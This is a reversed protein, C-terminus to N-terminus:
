DEGLDPATIEELGQRYARAALRYAHAMEGGQEPDIREIRSALNELRDAELRDAHAQKRRADAAAQQRLADIEEGRVRCRQDAKWLDRVRSELWGLRRTAKAIRAKVNMGDHEPAIKRLLLSAEDRLSQAASERNKRYIEFTLASVVRGEDNEASFSSM